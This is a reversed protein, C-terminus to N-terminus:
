EWCLLITNPRSLVIHLGLLPTKRGTFFLSQSGFQLKQLIRDLEGLM